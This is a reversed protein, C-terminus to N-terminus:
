SVNDAREPGGQYSSCIGLGDGAAGRLGAVAARRAALIPVIQADQSVLGAVIQLTHGAPTVTRTARSPARSPIPASGPM